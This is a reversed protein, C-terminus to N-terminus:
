LFIPLIIALIIGIIVFSLILILKLNNRWVTNKIKENDETNMIKTNISSTVKLEIQESNINDNDHDTNIKLKQDPTRESEHFATDTSNDYKSLQDKLRNIVMSFERQHQDNKSSKHLILLNEKNLDELLKRAFNEPFIKIFSICYFADNICKYYSNYSQSSNIIVDEGRPSNQSLNHFIYLSSKNIDEDSSLNWPFFNEKNKLDGIFVNRIADSNM